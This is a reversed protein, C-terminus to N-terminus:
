RMEPLAVKVFLLLLLLLFAAAVVCQGIIDEGDLDDKGVLILLSRM